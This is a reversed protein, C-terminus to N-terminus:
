LTMGNSDDGSRRNRSQCRSKKLEQETDMLRTQIWNRYRRDGRVSECNLLATLTSKIQQNVDKLKIEDEEIEGLLSETVVTPLSSRRTKLVPRQPQPFQISGSRHHHRACEPPSSSLYSSDSGASSSISGQRYRDPSPEPSSSPAEPLSTSIQSLHKQLADHQSHLLLYKQLAFAREPSKQTPDM